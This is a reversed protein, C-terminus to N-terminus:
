VPLATLKGLRLMISNGVDFRAWRGASEFNTVTEREIPARERKDVGDIGTMERLPDGAYHAIM